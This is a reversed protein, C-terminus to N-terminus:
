SRIQLYTGTGIIALRVLAAFTAVAVFYRKNTKHREHHAYMGILAGFGGAVTMVLLTRESIRRWQRRACAKDIRYAAWVVADLSGLFLLVVMISRM